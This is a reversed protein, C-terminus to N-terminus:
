EIDMVEIKSHILLLLRALSILASDQLIASHYVELM